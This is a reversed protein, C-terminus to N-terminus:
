ISTGELEKAVLEAYGAIDRWNDVKNPDGNLIRSIKLSIMELSEKQSCTLKNWLPVDNLDTYLKFDSKFEQSIQATMVYSGYDRRRDQILEETNM